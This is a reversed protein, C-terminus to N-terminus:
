IYETAPGPKRLCPLVQVSTHGINLLELALILELLVNDVYDNDKLGIMGGISGTTGTCTM